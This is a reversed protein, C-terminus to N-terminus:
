LKFSKNKIWNKTWSFFTFFYDLYYTNIKDIGM